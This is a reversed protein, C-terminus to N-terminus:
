SGGDDELADSTPEEVFGADPTAMVTSADDSPAAWVDPCGNTSKYPCAIVPPVSTIPNDPYSAPDERPLNPEIARGGVAFGADSCSSILPLFFLLLASILRM